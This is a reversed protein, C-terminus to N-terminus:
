RGEVSCDYPLDDGRPRCGAATVRWGDDFRALFVTEGGWRVIADRGYVEATPEAGALDDPAVEALAAACDDGDSRLVELTAPALLDCAGRPASSAAALFATAADTAA